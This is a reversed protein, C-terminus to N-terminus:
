DRDAEVRVCADVQIGIVFALAAAYFYILLVFFTALHGFVSAYSAVYSVYLGFGISIGIWGLLVLGTGLSVWPLARPTAPGFHVHLGVGVALVAAALLWRVIFSVAALAGEVDGTLLPGFRVIATAVVVCTGMALGLALSRPLLQLFGRPRSLGYVRDLVKMTVRTAGSLEWLALGLGITVWWLQKEGLVTTVTDDILTFAARSVSDKIEPAVDNRWVEELELFGLVGLLFLLFPVVAQLVQFAIASAYAALGNEKFAGVVDAIVRRTRM